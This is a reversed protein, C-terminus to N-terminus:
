HTLKLTLYCDLQSLSLLWEPARPRPSSTTTLDYVYVDCMYVYMVCIYYTYVHTSCIYYAIRRLEPDSGLSASLNELRPACVAVRVRGTLAM